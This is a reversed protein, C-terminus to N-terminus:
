TSRANPYEFDVTQITGSRTDVLLLGDYDTNLWYELLQRRTAERTASALQGSKVEVLYTQRQKVAVLDGYLTTEHRKGDICTHARIRPRETKVKYGARSLIKGATQEARVGRSRRHGGM